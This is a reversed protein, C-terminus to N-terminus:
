LFPQAKYYDQVEQMVFGAQEYLKRANPNDLAVELWIDHSLKRERDIVQRLAKGGIGQGRCSAFVAFGYIWSEGQHRYVRMKGVPIGDREIIDYGSADEPGIEEYIRAADEPSLGFGEVDLRILIERDAQSCSAKRLAVRSCDNQEAALRDSSAEYKMQYESLAYTCSRAQLFKVGSDSAAPTNLLIEKSGHLKNSQMAQDLLSTFHGQRRYDPHVMGCLEIKGGFDYVGLFAILKGDQHLFLDQPNSDKRSHLIEWNLKLTFGGLKECVRQLEAVEEWIRSNAM